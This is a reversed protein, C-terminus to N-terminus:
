RLTTAKKSKLNLLVKIIYLIPSRTDGEKYTFFLISKVQRTIFKEEM